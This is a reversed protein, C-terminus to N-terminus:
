RPQNRCLADLRCHRSTAAPRYPRPLPPGQCRHPGTNASPYFASTHRRVLVGPPISEFLSAVDDLSMQAFPAEPPPKLWPMGQAGFAGICLEEATLHRKRFQFANTRDFPFNGQAGKVVTQNAMIRTHCMACALQGLDVKGKERIVYTYFPIAGNADLPPRVRRYWEPNRVDAPTTDGEDDNFTIPADFVIEGAKIWDAETRLSPAHDKDDWIIVPERQKLWDLYSPPEHGPAYVLYSKYIPRVPIRYYYDASVHKPSGRPDALPVEMEAMAKDDWTRPMAPTFVTDSKQEQGHSIFATFGLLGCVTLALLSITRFKM